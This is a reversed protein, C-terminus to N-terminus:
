NSWWDRTGVESYEPKLSATLNSKEIKTDEGHEGSRHNCIYVGLKKIVQVTALQIGARARDENNPYHESALFDPNKKEKDYIIQLEKKFIGTLDDILTM